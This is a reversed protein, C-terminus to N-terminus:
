GMLEVAEGDACLSWVDRWGERPTQLLHLQSFRQLSSRRAQDRGLRPIGLLFTRGVHGVARSATM